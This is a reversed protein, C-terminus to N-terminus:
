ANKFRKLDRNITELHFEEPNFGEGLWDVIHEYEPNNPNKITELMDYYGWIGGCDEPPCAMAGESCIPTKLNDDRDLIKELVLDHYWSDGFDYEYMIKDKPKILVQNLRYKGEDVTKYKSGSGLGFDDHLEGYLVNKQRYQHLHSNRWGMVTQIVYHLTSLDIESDVAFRRWIAPKSDTLTIKLQYNKSSEKDKMKDEPNITYM